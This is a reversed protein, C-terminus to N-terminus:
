DTMDFRIVLLEESSGLRANSSGAAKEILTSRSICGDADVASSISRGAALQRVLRPDLRGPRRRSRGAGRCPAQRPKPQPPCFPEDGQARLIFDRFIPAPGKGRPRAPFLDVKQLPKEDDALDLHGALRARIEASLKANRRTPRSTSWHPASQVPM